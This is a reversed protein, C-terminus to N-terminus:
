EPQQTDQQEEHKQQPEAESELAQPQTEPEGKLTQSENLRLKKLDRTREATDGKEELSRKELKERMSKDLQDCEWLALARLQEDPPLLDLLKQCMECQEPSMQPEQTEPEM